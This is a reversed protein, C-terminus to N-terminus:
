KGIQDAFVHGFELDAVLDIRYALRNGIGPWAADIVARRTRFPAPLRLVIGGRHHFVHQLLEARFEVRGRSSISIGSSRMVFTSAACTADSSSFPVALPASATTRPTILGCPLRPGRKRSSPSPVRSNMRM